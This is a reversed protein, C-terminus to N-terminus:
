EEVDAISAIYENIEAIAARLALQIKKRKPLRDASVENLAALSQTYAEGWVYCVIQEVSEGGTGGHMRKQLRRKRTRTDVEATM